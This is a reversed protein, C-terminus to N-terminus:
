LLGRKGGRFHRLRVVCKAAYSAIVARLRLTQPRQQILCLAQAQTQERHATQAISDPSLCAFGSPLEMRTVTLSTM